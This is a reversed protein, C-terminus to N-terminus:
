KRLKKAKELIFKVRDSDQLQTNGCLFNRPQSSTKSILDLYKETKAIDNELIAIEALDFYALRKEYGSSSNEILELLHKKSEEYKLEAFEFDGVYFLASYYYKSQPFDKIITKFSDYAKRFYFDDTEHKKKVTIRGEVPLFDEGGANYIEYSSIGENFFEEDFAIENQAVSPLWIFLILIHLKSMDNQYQWWSM